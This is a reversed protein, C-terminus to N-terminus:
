VKPNYIDATDPSCIIHDIGFWDATRIITGLNGPDQIADLVLSFKSSLNHTEIVDRHPIEFIALADQPNNLTSIKKLEQPSISNLKIKRPFIAVKPTTEPVYFLQDITYDSHLFEMISKIGEVVFKGHQKRFKKLHLSKIYGIQSKSLM